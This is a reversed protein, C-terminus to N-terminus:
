EGGSSVVEVSTYVGKKQSRVVGPFDMEASRKAMVLFAASEIGRRM